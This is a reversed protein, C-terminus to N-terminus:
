QIVLEVSCVDTYKGIGSQIKVVEGSSLGLPLFKFKGIGDTVEFKSHSIYGKDSKATATFSVDKNNGNLDRYTFTLDVGDPPVMSNNSELKCKPLTKNSIYVGEYDPIYKIKEGEQDITVSFPVHDSQKQVLLLADTMTKTEPYFMMSVPFNQLPQLHYLYKNKSVWSQSFAEIPNLTTTKYYVDGSDTHIAVKGLNSLTFLMLCFPRFDNRAKLQTLTYTTNNITISDADVHIDLEVDSIREENTHIFLM